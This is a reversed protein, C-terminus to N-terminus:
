KPMNKLLNKVQASFKADNHIRELDTRAAKYNKSQYYAVGRLMLADTNNGDTGLVITTNSIVKAYNKQSNYYSALQLAIRPDRDLALSKEYYEVMKKRDNMEDYNKGIMSYLTALESNDPKTAVLKELYLNANAWDKNERYMNVLRRYINADPKLALAKQYYKGAEITNGKDLYRDGLNIFADPDNSAEAYKILVAFARTEDKIDDRLAFFKANLIDPNNPQMKLIQDYYTVAQEFQGADKATIALNNYVALINQNLEERTIIVPSLNKYINLAETYSVLAENFMGDKGSELAMDSYSKAINLNMKEVNLAISDSPVATPAAENFLDIAEKFSSIAMEYQKESFAENGDTAATYALSLPNRVPTEEVVVQKNSGCATLLLLVTLGILTFIKLKMSLDEM